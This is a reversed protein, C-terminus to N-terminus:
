YKTSAKLFYFSHVSILQVWAPDSPLKRAETEVERGGDEPLGM